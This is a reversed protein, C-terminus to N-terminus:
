LKANKLHRIRNTYKTSISDVRASGSIELDKFQTCTESMDCLMENTSDYEPVASSTSRDRSRNGTTDTV